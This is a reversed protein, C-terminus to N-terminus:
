KLFTRKYAETADEFALELQMSSQIHGYAELVRFGGLESAARIRLAMDAGPDDAVRALFHEASVEFEMPEPYKAAKFYNLLHAAMSKRRGSVFTIWFWISNKAWLIISVAQIGVFCVLFGIAGSDTFYAAIGSLAADPILSLLVALFLNRKRKSEFQM